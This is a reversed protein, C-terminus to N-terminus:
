GLIIYHVLVAYLTGILAGATVDSPYHVGLYVRSMAVIAALVVYVTSIFPNPTLFAITAALAFAATTHGSPFSFQDIGIKLSELELIVEFPRKRKVFYKLVGVTVSSLVLALASNKAFATFNSGPLLLLGLIVGVAFVDSGLYTAGIFFYDMMKSRLRTHIYVVAANDFRVIKELM